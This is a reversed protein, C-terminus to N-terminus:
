LPRNGRCESWEQVPISAINAVKGFYYAFIFSRTIRDLDLISEIMTRILVLLILESQTKNQCLSILIFCFKWIFWYENDSFWNMCYVELDPHETIKIDSNQKAIDTSFYLEYPWYNM